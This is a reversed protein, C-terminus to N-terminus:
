ELREFLTAGVTTPVPEGTTTTVRLIVDRVEGTPMPWELNAFTRAGTEGVTVDWGEGILEGAVDYLALQFPSSTGDTWGTGAAFHADINATGDLHLCLGFGQDGITTEISVRDGVSGDLSRAGDCRRDGEIADDGEDAEFCAGASLLVTLAALVRM